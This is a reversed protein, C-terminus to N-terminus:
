WPNQLRRALLAGWVKTGAEARSNTVLDTAEKLPGARGLLDVM